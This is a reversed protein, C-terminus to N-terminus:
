NDVEKLEFLKKFKGKGHKDFETGTFKDNVYLKFKEAEDEVFHIVSGIHIRNRDIHGSPHKIEKVVFKSM